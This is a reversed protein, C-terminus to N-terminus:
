QQQELSYHRSRKWFNKFFGKKKQVEEGSFCDFGVNNKYGRFRGNKYVVIQSAWKASHRCLKGMKGEFTPVRKMVRHCLVGTRRCNISKGRSARDFRLRRRQFRMRSKMVPGNANEHITPSVVEKEKKQEKSNNRGCPDTAEHLKPNELKNLPINSAVFAETLEYFFVSDDASSSAHSKLHRSVKTKDKKILLSTVRRLADRPSRQFFKPTLNPPLTLPKRNSPEWPNHGPATRDLHEISAPRRHRQKPYWGRGPGGALRLLEAGVIAQELGTQSMGRRYGGTSMNGITNLSGITNSQRPATQNGGPIDPARRHPTRPIDCGRAFIPTEPLSCSTQLHHEEQPSHSSRKQFPRRKADQLETPLTRREPPINRNSTNYFNSRRGRNYNVDMSRTKLSNSVPERHPPVVPPENSNPLTDARTKQVPHLIESYEDEDEEVPSPPLPPFDHQLVEVRVPFDASTSTPMPRAERERHAILMEKASESKQIGNRKPLPYASNFFLYRRGNDADASCFPHQHKGEILLQRYYEESRQIENHSSSKQLENMKQKENGKPERNPKSPARRKERKEKNLNEVGNLIFKDDRIVDIDRRELLESINQEIKRLPSIEASPLSSELEEEEEVTVDLERRPAFEDANLSPLSVVRVIPSASAALESATEAPAGDFDEIVGERVLSKINDFTTSHKKVDNGHRSPTSSRSSSLDVSLRSASSSFEQSLIRSNNLDLSYRSKPSNLEQSLRSHPTSLDVSYRSNPTQLERSLRSNLDMSFRSAPISLESSLRSNLSSNSTLSSGLNVLTKRDKKGRRVIYTSNGSINASNLEPPLMIHDDSDSFPSTVEDETTCPPPDPWDELDKLRNPISSTSSYSGSKRRRRGIVKTSGPTLLADDDLPVEWAISARKNCAPPPPPPLMEELSDDSFHEDDALESLPRLATTDDLDSSLNDESGHRKVERHREIATPVTRPPVRTPSMLPYVGHQYPLSGFRYGPPPPPPNLTFDNNEWGFPRQHKTKPLTTQTATHIPDPIGNIMPTRENNQFRQPPPITDMRPPLQTLPFSRNRGSNTKPRHAPSVKPLLTAILRQAEEPPPPFDDPDGPRMVPSMPQAEHHVPVEALPKFALSFKPKRGNMSMYGDDESQHGLSPSEDDPTAAPPANGGGGSTEVAANSNQRHQQASSTTSTSIQQIESYLNESRNMCKKVKSWTKPLQGWQADLEAKPTESRCPEAVNPLTQRKAVM